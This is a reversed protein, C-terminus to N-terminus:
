LTRPAPEDGCERCLRRLSELVWPADESTLLNQRTERAGEFGKIYHTLHKRMELLGMKPGKCALSSELHEAALALRFKLDKPPLAQGTELFHQIEEFIWPRGMAARGVLIGDCGTEVFMRAADEASRVDGNGIIPIRAKQKVRRILSWDAKGSYMQERTRAHLALAAAGAEQVSELLEDLAGDAADFGARTKVTVPVRGGIAEIMKKVIRGARSPEKLLAAGSDSKLIKGVPCGFNVDLIDPHMHEVVDFAAEAMVDPDGGFLQVAVPREVEHFDMLRYSKEKEALLARASVMETVMMASGFRRALLRFPLDTYGAMPALWVRGALAVGGLNLPFDDKAWPKFGPPPVSSPNPSEMGDDRVHEMVSM